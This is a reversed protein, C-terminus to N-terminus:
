LIDTQFYRAHFISTSPKRFLLETYTKRWNEFEDSQKETFSKSCSNPQAMYIQRISKDNSIGCTLPFDFIESLADTNM